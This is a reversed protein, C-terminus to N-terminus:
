KKKLDRHSKVQEKIRGQYEKDSKYGSRSYGTDQHSKALKGAFGYIKGKNAQDIVDQHSANEREKESYANFKSERSGEGGLKNADPQIFDALQNGVTKGVALTTRGVKKLTDLFGEQLLASPLGEGTKMKPRLGPKQTYAM